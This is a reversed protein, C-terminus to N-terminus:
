KKAALVSYAGLSVRVPTQKVTVSFSVPESSTRVWVIQPAGKAFQIEVPVDASFDNDVGSQALTGSVKFGRISSQLKLKPIGTAYIWNDFFADMTDSPSRPPLFEAALTRFDETTITRFEYRRRLEALMKLFRDDGLRRRLMHLIWTGKEYTISRWADRIGSQELRLGWVIPGASELTRGDEDKTLLRTRFDDLVADVAKAGNKKELWLLASYNALAETIWEDQYSSIIVVNGWWQHAVEHAVILDSFFLQQNESRLPAPRQSPDLYAITSLYVLGPFGQGFTGPIPAVTLTKLAPQGFLGSYFELSSSVDNSVAHLRALPDPPVPPIPAQGSLIDRRSPPILPRTGPDSQATGPKPQLAVELGRNGYIEVNFGPASGTVRVYNGLNFGAFRIPVATSRRTIRTEGDTRDDVLDGATVLTLKKPYRFTLDYTSFEPASRPYWTSRAGVFYVGNGASAIVDGEHEFSFEHDSEAALADPTVVLIANDDSARLVHEPVSDRTFLEAPAGDVRVSTVKMRGAIEFPFSRLAAKGVRLKITTSAKLHLNADLAADISFHRLSFGPEIRKAAGTRVSRSMFSTWINYRLRGAHDSLQGTVIQERARPDYLVDFNGRERGALGMFMFGSKKPDPSFLDDVMRLEFGERINALVPSWHDAMLAGVEPVKKGAADKQLRDLLLDGTGDTFVLLAATFHEDLNPSQTFSALSQREGRTPPLLIVEGDGGEVDTTFVASTRQGAAPKSFILYGDTFYMRVDDKRFSLDRVRYCEGPDLTAEHISRAMEAASTGSARAGM